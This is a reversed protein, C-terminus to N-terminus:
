EDKNGDKIGRGEMTQPTLKITQLNKLANFGAKILNNKNKTQGFTKSWVDKIGALELMKKLESEVVLGTGKPAPMLRVECSGERGVVAFPISHATGCFCGWDGCGRRIMILNKKANRIAKERSPVTEHSKGVGFGVIGDKDGSLTLMAFSMRSGERTVKQTAKSTKRRGGGFKGKAQGVNVLETGLNPILFDTIEEELIQKGSVLVDRMTPYKGALVDKGLQSKPVWVKEEVERQPRNRQFGGRQPPRNGGQPRNGQYGGGQPRSGPTGASKNDVM